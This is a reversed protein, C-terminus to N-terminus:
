PTLILLMLRVIYCPSPVGASPENVDMRMAKVAGVQQASLWLQSLHEGFLPQGQLVRQGLQQLLSCQCALLCCSGADLWGSNNSSADSSISGAPGPLQLLHQSV